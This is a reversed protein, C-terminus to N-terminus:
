TQVGLSEGGVGGMENSLSLSLYIYVLDQERHGKREMVVATAIPDIEFKSFEKYIGNNDSEITRM